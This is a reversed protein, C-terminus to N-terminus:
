FYKQKYDNRVWRSAYWKDSHKRKKQKTRSEKVEFPKPIEEEDVLCEFNYEHWTTKRFEEAKKKKFDVLSKDQEDHVPITDQVIDVLGENIKEETCWEDFIM